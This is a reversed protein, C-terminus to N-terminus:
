PQAPPAPEPEGVEENQQQNPTVIVGREVDITAPNQQADLGYSGRLFAQIEADLLQTRTIVYRLEHELRVREGQLWEGLHQARTLYNLHNTGITTEM